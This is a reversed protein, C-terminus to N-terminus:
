ERRRMRDSRGPQAAGEWSAGNMQEFRPSRWSAIEPKRFVGLAATTGSASKVLGVDSANVTGNVTVDARFGVGGTLPQGVRTKVLAIDSSTVSGNGNVDGVLVGMPITIDGPTGGDNVGFLTVIIRQANGVNTLPIIVENGVSSVMGGNPVGGSGIAGVGSVGAQPQGSVSVPNAFTVRIQHDGTAGGSRGEVGLGATLPLAIDFAGAAGHLKRSVAATPVPPLFEVRDVFVDQQSNGNILVRGDTWGHLAIDGYGNNNFSAYNYDGVYTPQISPDQQLPKPFIVDSMPMDAQWTAGNDRSSRGFRELSDNTTNREDYWSVFIKGHPM